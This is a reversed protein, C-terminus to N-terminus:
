CHSFSLLVPAAVRVIPIALAPDVQAEESDVEPDQSFFSYSGCAQLSLSLARFFSTVMSPMTIKLVM